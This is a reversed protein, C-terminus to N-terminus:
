PGFRHRYETSSLFAKIMGANQFNGNFANLKTLWFDFGSYDSDPAENPNRDLYGFYEMLVFARNFEQQSLISNEAVRRLARARAALDSSNTASGFEYIATQRDSPSPTVAANAFLGDVFQAPTMSAAFATKFRPRQVFEAAFSQKNNELVTEWGTQGVILGDSILEGDLLFDDLRVIPVALQHAGGITSTGTASGYAAKYMREVLYGTQQFEISLFFAASLNIRKAEICSQDAGCSTISTDWFDFGSQDPERHLFDLYQQRVFFETTDIANTTEVPNETGAFNVDTVDGAFFFARVGPSFTFNALRPQVSQIGLNDVKDFSFFGNVDTVTHRPNPGKLSMTVGALPAGNNTTVQGTILPSQGSTVMVTVKAVNSEGNADFVSFLFTDIGVFNQDPTYTFDGTAPNVIVPVGKGRDKLAVLRFILPNLDPNTASLTGAIATNKKTVLTAGNAIPASNIVTFNGASSATGTSTTVSIPGTRAGPPVYATIESNSNIVFSAAQGNFRVATTGTFPRGALRVTTGVRGSAPSFGTIVAAPDGITITYNRSGICFSSDFASLKLNFGGAVKPTGFIHGTDDLTLGEPLSNGTLEFGIIQGNGGSATLNQSYAVGLQGAALTSPNVTIAACDALDDELIHCEGEADEILVHDPASLDLMFKERPKGPTVGLVIVTIYETTVGPPFTLTGSVPQYNIGAKATGDVTAYHVSVTQNSPGSLRVPFNVSIAASEKQLNKGNGPSIPGAPAGATTGTDDVNAQPQVSITFARNGTCGQADTATITFNFNGADQPPGSIQGTAANLTVARPLAGASVSFSVVGNGGTATVTQDYQVQLPAAPLGNPAITIAPCPPRIAVNPSISFFVNGIAEVKVRSSPATVNPATINATGNNPVSAALVTPFSVGGDTSLSIRVNALNIPANNTNAVNWTVTQTSGPLWEAAAAPSTVLFPGSSGDITLKMAASVAGGRTDRATVQFNMVRAISPLVEGTLCTQSGCAYTTPPQAPNALLRDIRPFTRSSSTTPLFTRFIPRPEGDADNDPPSAKGLDYEEWAYTLKANDGPDQDNGTATLTFATGKPITFDPGANVTPPNNNTPTQTGCNGDGGVYELMIELDKVHFYDDARRQLNQEGCIGVYSGITSGSGPEYASRASRNNGSCNGATGNFTHGTGFQHAIEQSALDVDFSNGTPNASGSSGKAKAGDRCVSNNRGVGGSATSFVHGIDYNDKGIVQDLNTQNQNLQADASDNTYPQQNTTYIIKDENAVLVMRVALEREFIGNIRNMTTTIRALGAAVTGGAAQTYEFTAAVAIRYTRLMTGNPPLLAPEIPAGETSIANSESKGPQVRSQLPTDSMRRDHKFYSNYNTTDGLAQPDVFVTDTTSLVMAHFGAPTWDFRASASPDDIGRGSYTKINPFKAALAPEMIPSEVISFRKFTGDPMPLTMEVADKVRETFEMPVQALLRALADRNLRVRTASSPSMQVEPTNATADQDAQQWLGDSSVKDGRTSTRLRLTAPASWRLLQRSASAVSLDHM